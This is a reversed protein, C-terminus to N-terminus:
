SSLVEHIHLSPFSRDAFGQLIYIHYFCIHYTPTTHLHLPLSQSSSQLVDQDIHFPARLSYLCRIILANKRHYCSPTPIGNKMSQLPLFSLLPALSPILFDEYLFPRTNIKLRDEQVLLM